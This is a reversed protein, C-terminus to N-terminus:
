MFFLPRLPKKRQERKLSYTMSYQAKALTRLDKAVEMVRDWRRLSRFVKALDILGELQEM